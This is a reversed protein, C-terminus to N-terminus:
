GLAKMNGETMLGRLDLEHMSNCDMPRERHWSNRRCTKEDQVKDDDWTWLPNRLYDDDFNYIYDFFDRESEPYRSDASVGREAEVNRYIRRIKEMGDNTFLNVRVEGFHPSRSVDITSIPVQFTKSKQLLPFMINMTAQSTADSLQRQVALFRKFPLVLFLSLSAGFMVFVVVRRRLTGFFWSQYSISPKKKRAPQRSSTPLVTQPLQEFQFRHRSRVQQM